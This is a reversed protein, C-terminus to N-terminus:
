ANGSVDAMEPAANHGERTKVTTADWPYVDQSPKTMYWYSAVVLVSKDAQLPTTGSLANDLGGVDV